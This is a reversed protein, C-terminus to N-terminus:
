NYCNGEFTENGIDVGYMYNDIENKRVTEIITPDMISDTVVCDEALHLEVGNYKAKTIIQFATDIYENEVLSHGINYGLARYFTFVM